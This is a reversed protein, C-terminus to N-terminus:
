NNTLRSITQGITHAAQRLEEATHTAMLAARLMAQGKPVTPYRIPSIFINQINLEEAVRLALEEDHLVIPVIATDSHAEIGEQQLTKCFIRTNEQLQHVMSPQNELLELAKTAAALVAPSLSTSFIYSRATNRLYDILLQSGCVYGGEAALAKSLTGMLVDPQRKLGFHEVIGRGTAGIVGTAHAEDVMTLVHYQEALAMIDPLPAIDGGMSFVADTVILGQCGAHEQLKEALDKMDNHKYVVTKAHSLRCGDIISAHNLEDSFIISDKIGLASIIGVNAMYGTNFILAKETHKFSALATELQNHLPLTGTTLRSGGSGVGYINIAEKAAEQGLLELRREVKEKKNLLRSNLLKTAKEQQKQKNDSSENSRLTAVVSALYEDYWAGMQKLEDASVYPKYSDLTVRKQVAIAETQAKIINDLAKQNKIKNGEGLARNFNVSAAQYQLRKVLPMTVYMNDMVGLKGLAERGFIIPSGMFMGESSEKEAGSVTEYADMQKPNYDQGDVKLQALAAEQNKEDQKLKDPDYAGGYKPSAMEAQVEKQGNNTIHGMVFPYVAYGAEYGANYGAEYGGDTAAAKGKEYGQVTGAYYSNEADGAGYILEQIDEPIVQYAHCNPCVDGPSTPLCIHCSSYKCAWFHFTVDTQCNDCYHTYSDVTDYNVNGKVDRWALPTKNGDGDTNNLQQGCEPCKIPRRDNIIQEENTLEAGVPVIIMTILAAAILAVALVKKM